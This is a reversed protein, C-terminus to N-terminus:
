LLQHQNNIFAELEQIRKAKAQLIHKHKKDPLAVLNQQRNDNTIGNLHHIQWGKPILKGHTQEWVVIHEFILGVKNARPHEPKHILIYGHQKIRGGKWCPHKEGKPFISNPMKGLKWANKVSCSRCRKGYPTILKNCDPCPHKHTKAWRRQALRGYEKKDM